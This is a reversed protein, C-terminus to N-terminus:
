GGAPERVRFASVKGEDNVVLVEQGVVVPPQSVREGGTGTRAVLDGSEVDFFHLYREYDAVVIQKGLVVPASLRRNSLM